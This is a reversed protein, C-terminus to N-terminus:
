IDGEVIIPAKRALLKKLWNEEESDDNWSQKEGSAWILYVLTTVILVAFTIWFVTNWEDRSHKSRFFNDALCNILQFPYLVQSQTLVGTLFIAIIGSIAGIGNVLGLLSATYNPCIDLVNVRNGAYFAGMLANCLVIFGIALDHSVYSALVLFVGPVITAAFSYTKSTFGVLKLPLEIENCLFTFFKRSFTVTTVGRRILYGGIGGCVISFIYAVGYSLAIYRGATKFNLSLVIKLYKPIYTSIFFIAWDHGLQAIILAWVPKSTLLSSWPVITKKKKESLQGLERNM